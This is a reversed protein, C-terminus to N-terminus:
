SFTLYRASPAQTPPPRPRLMSGAGVPIVHSPSRAAFLAIIAMRVTQNWAPHWSLLPDHSKSRLRRYGHQPRVASAERFLHSYATPLIRSAVIVSLNQCSSGPARDLTNPASSRLHHGTTARHKLSVGDRALFPTRQTLCVPPSPLM